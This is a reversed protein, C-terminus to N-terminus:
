NPQKRNNNLMLISRMEKQIDVPSLSYKQLIARAIGFRLFRGALREPSVAKGNKSHKGQYIVKSYRAPDSHRGPVCRKRGM